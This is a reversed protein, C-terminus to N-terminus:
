LSAVARACEPEQLLSKIGKLAQTCVKRTKKKKKKFRRLWSHSCFSLTSSSFSAPSTLHPSGRHPVSAQLRTCLGIHSLIILCPALLQLRTVGHYPSTLWPTSVHHLSSRLLFSTLDSIQRSLRCSNM